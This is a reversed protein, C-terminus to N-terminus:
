TSLSALHLREGFVFPHRCRRRVEEQYRLLGKRNVTLVSDLLGSVHRQLAPPNTLARTVSNDRISRGTAEASAVFSFCARSM